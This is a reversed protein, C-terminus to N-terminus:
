TTPEKEVGLKLLLFNISTKVHYYFRIIMYCVVHTNSRIRSHLHNVCERPQM